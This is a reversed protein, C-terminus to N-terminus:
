AGKFRTQREGIKTNAPLACMEELERRESIAAQMEKQLKSFRSSFHEYKKLFAQGKETVEYGDEGLRLLGLNLTEDLYKELLTHSLNAAYMIRTKKNAGNAASSLVDAIIEFRRRYRVL